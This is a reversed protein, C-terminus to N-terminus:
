GKKLLPPINESKFKELAPLINPYTYSGEDTQDNYDDNATSSKLLQQRIWRSVKGSTGDKSDYNGEEVFMYLDDGFSLSNETFTFENLWSKTNETFDGFYEAAMKSASYRDFTLYWIYFYCLIKDLNSEFWDTLELSNYRRNVGFPRRRNFYGLVRNLIESNKPDLMQSRFNMIWKKFIRSDSWGEQITKNFIKFREKESIHSISLFDKNQVYYGSRRTMQKDWDLLTHVTNLHTEKSTKDNIRDLNYIPFRELADFAFNRLTLYLEEQTIIELGFSIALYLPSYIGPVHSYEVALPLDTGELGWVQVTQSNLEEKFMGVQFFNKRIDPSGLKVLGSSSVKAMKLVCINIDPSSLLKSKSKNTFYTGLIDKFAEKTRIFKHHYESTFARCYKDGFAELPIKEKGGLDNITVEVLSWRPVVGWKDTELADKKFIYGKYLESYVADKKYVWVPNRKLSRVELYCDSTPVYDSLSQVYASEKQKLYKKYLKSYVQNIPTYQGGTDGFQFFLDEKNSLSAMLKKESVNLYNLSDMYPYKDFTCNDLLVTVGSLSDNNKYSIIKKDPFQSLVWNLMKGEDYDRLTYTRDLYYDAQGDCIKWLLARGLLKTGDESKLIVLKCVNPNDTYIGFFDQCKPYRMCSGSLSGNGKEYNSELYWFKIKDGEVIEFNGPSNLADWEIKYLNVFDEIQKDTVDINNAVLLQRVLRGVKSNNRSKEFPDSGSQVIRSVQKDNTFLVEDNAKGLSLYNVNTQIDKNFLRFLNNSVISKTRTSIIIKKFEDDVLLHSELLLNYFNNYQKLKRM